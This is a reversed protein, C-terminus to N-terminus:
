VIKVRLCRLILPAKSGQSLSTIFGALRIGVGTITAMRSPSAPHPEDLWLRDAEADAESLAVLVDVVVVPGAVM